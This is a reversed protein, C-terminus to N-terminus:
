EWVAELLMCLQKQFDKTKKLEPMIQKLKPFQKFINSVIKFLAIIDQFDSSNIEDTPPTSRHSQREANNSNTNSPQPDANKPKGSVMSAFSIGEVVNNSNFAKQHRNELPSGKKPKPFKPCKTYCATHGYVECNICYPNEQRQKIDCDKTLHAKGCKLCRPTMHCNAATHFFDNCNFCQTTGKVSYGEIKVQMHGVNKLDFITLNEKNRTLTILFFPLPLKTRKSTLQNCSCDSYGQHELDNIIDETKTCGPLGKIVIKIPKKDKPPIVYFQYAKDLDMFDVLDKQQEPSDLNLKIYKGSTKFKLGPFKEILLDLQERYNDKIKLYIPQPPQVKPAEVTNDTPLDPDQELNVFSNNVSIPTLVPTPTTPRATKNPFVFDDANNKVNKRKKQPPKKTIDVQPLKIKLETHDQCNQDLCPPMTRLESVLQNRAAITEELSERLQQHVGHEDKEAKFTALFKRYGEIMTEQNKLRTMAARRKGCDTTSEAPLSSPTTPRSLMLQEYAKYSLSPSPPEMDIDSM